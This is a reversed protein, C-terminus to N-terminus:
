FHLKCEEAVLLWDELEFAAKREEATRLHPVTSPWTAQKM